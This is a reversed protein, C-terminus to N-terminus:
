VSSAAVASGAVAFGTPKCPEATEEYLIQVTCAGDLSRRGAELIATTRYTTGITALSHDFDSPQAPGSNVAAVADIFAELSRCM